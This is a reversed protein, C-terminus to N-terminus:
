YSKKRLTINPERGYEPKQLEALKKKGLAWNIVNAITIGVKIGTFSGPGPNASVEKIDGIELGTKELLKHISAVIDIDGTIKELEKGNKMLRVSKEYRKTTDILIKYM